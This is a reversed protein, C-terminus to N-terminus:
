YEEIDCSGCKRCRRRVGEGHHGTRLELNEIRNDNKIGNIHHVTEDDRLLRELYEEMILRHERTVYYSNGNNNVFVAIYGDNTHLYNCLGPTRQRFFRISTMKNGKLQQKYHTSCFGSARKVRGCGKFICVDKNKNM